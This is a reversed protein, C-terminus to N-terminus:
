AVGAPLSSLEVWRGDEAASRYAGEIVRHSPLTAEATVASPAGGGIEALVDAYLDVYWPLMALLDASRTTTPATVLREPGEAEPTSLWLDEGALVLNGRTGTITLREATPPLAATTAFLGSAFTGHDLLLSTVDETELRHVASASTLATVRDPQGLLWILLDLAHVAQTILVGGGDRAQTGRGPEDYYAQPRFWPVHLQAGLVDGLRGTALLERARVAAPKYRHQLCVALTRGADAAAAVAAESDQLTRGLPKECVVDCGAAVLASVQALHASPPSAVVALVPGGVRADLAQRLDPHVEVDPDMALIRRRREEDGTVVSIRAVGSARLAALHPPVGL